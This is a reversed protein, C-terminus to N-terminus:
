LDVEPWTAERIIAVLVRDMFQIQDSGHEKKALGEKPM